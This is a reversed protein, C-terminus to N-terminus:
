RCISSDKWVMMEKFKRHCTEDIIDRYKEMHEVLVNNVFTPVSIGPAIVPLIGTLTEYLSEDIYTQRKAGTMKRTLFMERYASANEMDKLLDKNEMDEEQKFQKLVPGAQLGTTEEVSTGIADPEPIGSNSLAEILTEGLNEPIDMKAFDPFFDADDPHEKFEAPFVTEMYTTDRVSKRMDTQIPPLAGGKRLRNRGAKMKLVKYLLYTVFLLAPYIFLHEM